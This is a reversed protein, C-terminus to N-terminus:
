GTTMPVSTATDHRWTRWLRDFIVFAAIMAIGTRLMLWWGGHVLLDANVIATHRAVFGGPLAVGVHDDTYPSVTGLLALVVSASTIAVFARRLAVSRLLWGDIFALPLCLLFLTEVFWRASYAYGGLDITRLTFTAMFGFSGAVAALVAIREASSRQRWVAVCGALAFLLVPAHSYLGRRGVFISFAYRM